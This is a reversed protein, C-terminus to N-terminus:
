TCFLANLTVALRVGAQALRQETIAIAAAIYADSLPAGEEAFAYVQDRLAQSEAAWDPPTGISWEAQRQRVRPMLWAAYEVPTLGSLTVAETDWFRHLNLTRRGLRVDVRNGGRDEARGVHLPQHLDVIFHTVFRLADRRDTRPLRTNSLARVNDDIAWLIDREPPTEYDAISMDDPINMYHWPGTHLWQPQSRIRDAWLGLEDLGEGRGLDQVVRAADECLMREAVMGAIRHGDAGYGSVLAPWGLLLVVGIRVGAFPSLLFRM